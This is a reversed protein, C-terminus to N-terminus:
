LLPQLPQNSLLWFPSLVLTLLPLERKLCAKQWHQTNGSGHLWLMELKATACCATGLALGMSSMGVDLWHGGSARVHWRGQGEHHLLDCTGKM